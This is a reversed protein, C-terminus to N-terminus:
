ARAVAHAPDAAVDGDSVVQLLADVVSPDFQSGAAAVLERRAHHAGFAPRYPRASVMARYADAVAVIRAGLPILERSLASPYGTGDFREHHALVIPSLEVLAPVHALLNAGIAPHARVETWEEDNLWDPKLLVRESVGVRGIDQVLAAAEVRTAEDPSLGMQNAIARALKATAESHGRRTADKTEIADVLARVGSLHAVELRSSASRLTEKVTRLQTTRARLEGSSGAYLKFSYWAVALPLLFIAVGVMGLARYALALMAGIIATSAYTATMWAYHERWIVVPNEGSSLAIVLATLATSAGFYVLGSVAVAAMTSLIETSGVTGLREFTAGALAASVILSGTNFLIRRLPKRRPTFANVVASGLSVLVGFPMGYLVYGAITAVYAVSVASSRFVYVPTRQALAGLTFLMGAALPDVGSLDLRAFIVVLIASGALAISAIFGNLAM